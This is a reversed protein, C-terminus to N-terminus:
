AAGKWRAAVLDRAARRVGGGEHRLAQLRLTWLHLDYELTFGMAGTLQHTEYFARQAVDAAMVMASAALDAPAGRWAAERAQQQVSDVSVHLDALRHAVAQFSAIPKGFQVRERLYRTTLALAARATGAVEAAVAVQRWRHAVLGAGPALRRGDVAGIRAMPYGFKSKVTEAEFAGRPAAFADDGDILILLDAEAGFRVVDRAGADAVAVVPAIDGDIVAPAVLMRAGIPALAAAEAAWETVLAATLPGTAEDGFLDLFGGEGMEALLAQDMGNDARLARAREPGAHTAFLRECSRQIEQQIDDLRLDM